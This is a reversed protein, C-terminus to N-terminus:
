PRSPRTGPHDPHRGVLELFKAPVELVPEPEPCGRRSPPLLKPQIQEPTGDLLQSRIERALVEGM